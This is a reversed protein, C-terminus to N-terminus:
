APSDISPEPGAAPDTEPVPAHTKDGYLILLVSAVIIASALITRPTVPEGAIAWGLFIAIVPNVYSHTAVIAPSTVRLLWIFATFTLLGAFVILYLMAAVSRFSIRAFDLRSWEGSLTGVALMIVGGTIMQMATSLAASKPLHAHRSYLAGSAWCIGGFILVIAGLTDIHAGGLIDTPSILLVVGGFGLLIGFLAQFSPMRSPEGFVPVFWQLLAVWLPEDAVIVSTIGSAVRQEAWVVAGNGGLLLLFGLIVAARWHGREPPPAGRWRTWVFLISGAILFRVGAMLFPPITEIAIRIGLYSSGWVIYIAAFAFLLQARPPKVISNTQPM